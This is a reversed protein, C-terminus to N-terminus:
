TADTPFVKRMGEIVKMIQPHFEKSEFEPIALKYFSIACLYFEYTLITIHQFLVYSNEQFEPFVNTYEGGDGDHRGLLELIKPSASHAIESYIGYLPKIKENLHTIKPNKRILSEIDDTIEIEKIRAILELQKRFLVSSEGLEGILMLDVITFHTRVYSVLLDSTYVGNNIHYIHKKSGFYILDSLLMGLSSLLEESGKKNKFFDQRTKKRYVKRTRLYVELNSTM